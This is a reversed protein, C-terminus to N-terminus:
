NESQCWEKLQKLAAEINDSTMLYEGILIADVNNNKLLQIDDKDKIGSESVIKVDGPLKKSINISTNLDVSFDNLNRNNIGILTNLHFDVKNLQEESHLELLVELGIEQAAQTLEAIQNKSLIESILL